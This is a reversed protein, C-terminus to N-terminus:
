TTADAEIFFVEVGSKQAASALANDATVISLKERVAVAIHLADLTRLASNFRGIRRRADEYDEHDLKVVRYHGGDVHTKFTDAIRHADAAALARERVKRAVASVLEVM